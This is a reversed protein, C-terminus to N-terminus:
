IDSVPHPHTTAPLPPTVTSLPHTSHPFHHSISSQTTSFIHTSGMCVTCAKRKETKGGVWVSVCLRAVLVSACPPLQSVRCTPSGARAAYDTHRTYGFPCCIPRIPRFHRREKRARADTKRPQDDYRKRHRAGGGRTATTILPRELRPISPGNHVAADQQIPHYYAGSFRIHSSRHRQPRSRRPQNTRIRHGTTGGGESTPGAEMFLGVAGGNDGLMGGVGRRVGLRLGVVVVQGCVCM